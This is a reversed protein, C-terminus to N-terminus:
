ELGVPVFAKGQRRVRYLEVAPDHDPVLLWEEAAARELLAQKEEVALLPQNDYSMLWPLAVHALTPILDSTFCLRRGDDLSLLPMQMAPSHGHSLLVSLGPLIEGEGRQEVLLGAEILPMFDAPRFSTRDRLSPQQAWALHERQIHVRARPFTPQLKGEDDVGVLGGAHDFHLHTAIVDTIEQTAVGCAELGATLGNLSELAFQKQGRTPWRSGMGTDVLVKAGSDHQLLLCRTALRIRNEDDPAAQRQWLARPVAGFMAGGDLAFFSANVTDV